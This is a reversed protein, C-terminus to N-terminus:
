RTRSAASSSPLGRSALGNQCSTWASKSTSSTRRQVRRRGSEASVHGSSSAGVSRSRSRASASSAARSASAGLREGARVAPLPPELARLGGEVPRRPERVREHELLEARAGRERHGLELAEGVAGGGPEDLAEEGRPRDVGLGVRHLAARHRVRRQVAEERAHRRLEADLLELRAVDVVRLPQHPLAEVLRDAAHPHLEGLHLQALEVLRQPAVELRDDLLLALGAEREHRAPELDREPVLPRRRLQLATELERGPQREGPLDVPDVDVREAGAPDHLVVLRALM